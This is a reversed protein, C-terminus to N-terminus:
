SFLSHNHLSALGPKEEYLPLIIEYGHHQPILKHHIYVRRLLNKEDFELEFELWGESFYYSFLSKRGFREKRRASCFAIEAMDRPMLRGLKSVKCNPQTLMKIMDIFKISNEIQIGLAWSIDQPLSVPYRIRTYIQHIFNKIDM